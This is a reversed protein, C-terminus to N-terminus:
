PQFYSGNVFLIDQDGDGDYDFVVVGSSMTEPMYRSETGDARVFAGNVHRFTIGSQATVDTFGRISVAGADTACLGALLALATVRIFRLAIRPFGLAIRSSRFRCVRM